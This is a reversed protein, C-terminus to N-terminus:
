WNNGGAGHDIHPYVTISKGDYFSLSFPEGAPKPPPTTMWELGLRAPAPAAAAAAGGGSGGGSEVEEEEEVPERRRRRTKRGKPAAAAAAPEGDGGDGGAGGRVAAGSGSKTRRHTPAAARGEGARQWASANGLYAGLAFALVVAFVWPSLYKRWGSAASSGAGAGLSASSARSPPM